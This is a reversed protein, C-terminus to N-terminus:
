STRFLCTPGINEKAQSHGFQSEGIMLRRKRGNMAKSDIGGYNLMKEVEGYTSGTMSTNNSTTTTPLCVINTPTGNIGKNHHDTTIVPVEDMGMLHHTLRLHITGNDRHYHLIPLHYRKM